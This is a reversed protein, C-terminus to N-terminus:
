RWRLWVELLRLPFFATDLIDAWGAPGSAEIPLGLGHGYNRIQGSTRLGAYAGVYIVVATVVFLAIVSFGKGETTKVSGDEGQDCSHAAIKM